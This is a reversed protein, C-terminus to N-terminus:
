SAPMSVTGGGDIDVTQGVAISTNTLILEAGSGSMGVAMDMVATGDSSTIRAWGATGAASGTVPGPDVLTATGTTGSTDFAPKALAVDALLTGSPASDASAPQTGSYIRLRGAAPGSDARTVIADAAADRSANPLRVAM